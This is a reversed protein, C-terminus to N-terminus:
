GRLAMETRSAHGEARVLLEAGERRFNAAAEPDSLGDLNIEVNERAGRLGALLLGIAVRVDSAAAPNGHAAVAPAHGLAEACARVTDLPTTTATLMAERIATKRAAKESDSVKPLRYAAVVADYATADEDVLRALRDRIALLAPWAQSLATRDEDSGHRTKTMGAVMALLATGVAASLAAASGGGPTPSPASFDQLLDALTRTTLM